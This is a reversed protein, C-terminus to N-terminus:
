YQNRVYRQGGLKKIHGNIELLMLVSQLTSTELGTKAAIEEVSQPVM